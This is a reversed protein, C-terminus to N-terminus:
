KTIEELVSLLEDIKSDPIQGAQLRSLVSIPKLDRRGPKPIGLFSELDNEFYHIESTWETACSEIFSNVM